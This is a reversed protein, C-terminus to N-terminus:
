DERKVSRKKWEVKVEREGAQRTEWRSETEAAAGFRRDSGHGDQRAPRRAGAHEDRRPGRAGAPKRDDNKRAAFGRDGSPRPRREDDGGARRPEFSSSDGFPRDNFARAQQSRDKNRGGHAPRADASFGPRPPRARAEEGIRNGISDDDFSRAPREARAKPTPSWGDDSRRPGAAHAPRGEGSRAGGSRGEGFRGDRPKDNFRPKDGSFSRENSRPRDGGRSEGYRADGGRSDGGRSDGSRAAGGRGDYARAGSEAPRGREGSGQYRGAPRPSDFRGGGSREGGRSDGGRSDNGYRPRRSDDRRGSGSGGGERFRTPRDSPIFRPEHGAVLAVEVRDGTFHEIRRLQGVDRRGVFSIAIGSAGARGTRGIRHVYDEANRPLDFNFVHSIAPVDIGRAAVDTAVLVRAEGRRLRNLMRTRVKQQLDGHLAVTSHGEDGLAQALEEAERKTATFIIAQGQVETSLLHRLLRHKHADDDIYLVKQAINDRKHTEGGVDIRRPSTQLEKSLDCVSTSVTATFCLTQHKAPLAAAITRVDDTFGIDLMRDAEDLIFVEVRSLDIRQGSLQDILRGPTAVLIEHPASLDRIQQRYPEGGTICVTRMRALRQTFQGAAKSIQQALERTPSLVLVRPGRGQEPNALLKEMAPLLFAATKGTGTPAVAILDHGALALPIAQAQVPTPTEIGIRALTQLLRESLGLAAFAEPLVPESPAATIPELEVVVEESTAVFDSTAIAPIVATM